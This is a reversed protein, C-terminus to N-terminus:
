MQYNIDNKSYGTRKEEGSKRVPEFRM